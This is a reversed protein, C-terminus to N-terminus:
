RHNRRFQGPTLGTYKQFVRNLNRESYGIMQAIKGLSYETDLLLEQSKDIKCQVVYEMYSKGVFKRFLQSVYSPSLGVMESCYSLSVDSGINDIIYTCIKEIESKGKENLNQDMQQKYLPFCVDIFWDVMENSTKRAALQNFLDNNLIEFTSGGQRQISYIISTFLMQYSQHIFVFSRSSRVENNFSILAKRADEDNRNNLANIISHENEKPYLTITTSEIMEMDEIYLVQGTDLFMRYRLALLAEQYSVAVDTIHTYVRGVGVSAKFKIYTELAHCIQDAYIKIESILESDTLDRGMIVAVGQGDHFNFVYGELNVTERLLEEMVNTIIFSFIPVDSSFFRKEKHINEIDVVITCYSSDLSINLEKAQNQVETRSMNQNRLLNFFFRERITPEMKDLYSNVRESEESLYNLCEQVFHIESTTKGFNRGNSLRQGHNILAQIPSYIRKSSQYTLLMSMGVLLIVAFIVASRIWSIQKNIEEKPILVIYTWDKTNRIYSLLMESGDHKKFFFLETVKDSQIINNIIRNDQRLDDETMSGSQFMVEHTPNLVFISKKSIDLDGGDELYIGVSDTYMHILIMGESKGYQGMPLNRIFTIYGKRKAEPLYTWKAIPSKKTVIANKLDVIGKYLSQKAYGYDISVLDSNTMRYFVIDAIFRNSSKHRELEDYVLRQLEPNRDFNVDDMAQTIAPNLALQLSDREIDLLINEMREMIISLSHKTSEKVQNSLNKYMFQYYVTGALIVPICTSLIGFWVLKYFYRYKIKNNYVNNCADLLKRLKIRRRLFSM